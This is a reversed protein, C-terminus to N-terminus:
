RGEEAARVIPTMQDVLWPTLKATGTRNLHGGDMFNAPDTVLFYASMIPGIREYFVPDEFIQEVGNYVPMVFFAIDVGKAKALRAIERVSHREIAYRQDLNFFRLKPDVYVGPPEAFPPRSM